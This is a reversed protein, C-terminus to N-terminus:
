SAAALDREALRKLNLLQRRMMALDGIPLIARMLWGTPGRPYRVLVKAILRCSGGSLSEVVYSVWVEGFVERGGRRQKNVVTLSRSADFHKLEFIKMATQGAALRELGPTLSQPSQRGGNDLWDYSYPAARLQCLWRFVLGAGANVTVARFYAADATGCLGDCPYAGSREARTAGWTAGLRM